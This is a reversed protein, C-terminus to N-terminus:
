AADNRQANANIDGDDSVDDFRVSMRKSVGSQEMTVGYLIDAVTMSRKSHTIMIFQTTDQFEKVVSSYREVNAEDLAADVEDLICFPSPRSKFIALLLAVATMTKEGGSLLSISRLEKGPPRAVIDIGCDLVNHPDELIIDGEGGGFLRRFLDQFHGRITSLSESFLRQSEHNIKGVIEELTSKAEVLDQLQSNLHQFRSDLEDLDKLSDTNVSGMLKLKRRLRNVQKELEDRVELFGENSFDSESVTAAPAASTEDQEDVVEPKESDESAGLTEPPQSGNEHANRTELLQQYASVGSDVVDALKLQYEDHIKEDLTVVQHRIDGLEMELAHQGDTLQRREKRVSAERTVVDSKEARLQNRQLVVKDGERGLDEVEVFLECLESTANLTALIIQRRKQRGAARRRTAEDAHDQRQAHERKLRTIADQLGAFRQENKAFAVQDATLQEEFQALQRRDHTIRDELQDITRRTTEVGKQADTLEQRINNYETNRQDELTLNRTLEGELADRDRRLQELQQLCNLADANVRAHEDLFEQLRGQASSFEQGVKQLSEDIVNLRQEDEAIQRDLKLLDNKLRRLESKRSVLATDGGVSGVFLTGDAELLEGQRTVFRSGTPHTETLHIAVDLTEVVWTDGLLTQALAPIERTFELLHDARAIVGDQSSLDATEVPPSPALADHCSPLPRTQDAAVFGVRGSFSTTGSNLHELLPAFEELVILQARSGLAVELIAAHEFDIELLDAVSGIIRNWPPYNSSRARNLIEKVGIGLGEQRRELDDLVSCRAQWASRQERRGALANRFESDDDKLSGIQDQIEALTSRWRDVQSQAENVRMQRRDYEGRCIGIEAELQKGREEIKLREESLTGQQTELGTLRDNLASETRLLELNKQQLVALQQQQQEIAATLDHSRQSRQELESEEAAFESEFRAAEDTTTRLERAAEAVRRRVVSQQRRLRVIESDLEAHRNTQYGITTERSAVKERAASTKQEIQRLRDDLKLLEADFESIRSELHAQQRNLDDIQNEAVQAAAEIHSIKTSLHRYDDAALGLWCERLQSFLERFTAAKAAQTRTSNLQAEVEDVIDTLRLLNQDVRDLKRLAETKRSKYRSIGAAEEFVLRRASANAQLIQDVRGQEIISYAGTAAGTGMFLDKVDKLRATNRNILYEADGNQWIRRGIQVERSDIPLYGDINHFTLTAEAFASPKRGSAGNFIVDTMEKGRLSKPSQDGLIWKIADVVNSKGSGNPGVVCTIGEAFDFKTRDAFSKFGFLELSKLM